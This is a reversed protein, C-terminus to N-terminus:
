SYRQAIKWGFWVGIISGVGSTMFSGFMDFGVADGAFWGVYGMVIMGVFICLRNLTVPPHIQLVALRTRGDRVAPDLPILAPEHICIMFERIETDMLIVFHTFRMEILM